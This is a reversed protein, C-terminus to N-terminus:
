SACRVGRGRPSRGSASTTSTSPAGPPPRTRPWVRWSRSREWALLVRVRRARRVSARPEGAGANRRERSVEKRDLYRVYNVIDWRDRPPIRDYSPMRFGPTGGSGLRIVNYLYGDSRSTTLGVLPFVGGFPGPKPNTASVPGDGMGTAGHCALCFITYQKEGNQLSRLDAPDRPNVLADAAAV